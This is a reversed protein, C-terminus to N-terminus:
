LTVMLFVSALCVDIIRWNENMVILLKTCNSLCTFDGSFQFNANLQWSTRRLMGGLANYRAIAKHSRLVIGQMVALGVLWLGTM